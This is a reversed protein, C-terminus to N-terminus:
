QWPQASQRANATMRRLVKLAAVYEEDSVGEHVQARLGSVLQKVEAKGALGAETLNLQGGAPDTALWGRHLLQDVVRSIDYPNDAFEALAAVVEARTQPGADVRNLVWWQPQTIDLRAMSDRLLNKVANSAVGTWYAVPQSALDADAAHPDASHQATPAAPTRPESTTTM